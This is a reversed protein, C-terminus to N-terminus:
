IPETREEITTTPENTNNNFAWAQALCGHRTPRRRGTACLIGERKLESFRASCTQHNMGLAAEAEDCTADTVGALYELIRARDRGKDTLRNAAQSQADGGHRAACIDWLELTASM